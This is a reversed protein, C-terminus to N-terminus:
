CWWKRACYGGTLAGDPMNYNGGGDTDVYVDGGSSAPASSGGCERGSPPNSAYELDKAYLQAVYGPSADNRGQYVGTHDWRVMELGFDEQNYGAQVYRLHRGYPDTDVGPEETLTVPYTTNTLDSEASSKAYDGEVTGIECSDIGLVRITRGDTLEFTDGDIVRSVTVQEGTVTPTAAPTATRYSSSTSTTPAQTTTPSAAATTSATTDEDDNNCAAFLAGIVVISALLSKGSM